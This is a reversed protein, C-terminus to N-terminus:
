TVSTMAKQSLSSTKATWGTAGTASPQSAPKNKWDAFSFAAALGICNLHAPPDRWLEDHDVPWRATVDCLFDIWVIDLFGAAVFSTKNDFPTQADEETELQAQALIVLQQILEDRSPLPQRECPKPM